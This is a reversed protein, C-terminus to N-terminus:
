RENTDITVITTQQTDGHLVSSEGQLAPSHAQADTDKTPLQAKPQPM